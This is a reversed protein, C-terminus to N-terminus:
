RDYKKWNYSSKHRDRRCNDDRRDNDNNGKYYRSRNDYYDNRDHSRNGYDYHRYYYDQYKYGKGYNYYQYQRNQYAEPHRVKYYREKRAQYEQWESEKMIGRKYLDEVDIAIANGSFIFLITSATLFIKKM